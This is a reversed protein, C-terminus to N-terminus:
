SIKITYVRYEDYYGNNYNSWYAGYPKEYALTGSLPNPNKTAIYFQHKYGGKALYIAIRYVNGPLLTVRAVHDKWDDLRSPPNFPNYLDEWFVLFDDIANEVPYLRFLFSGHPDTWNFIWISNRSPNKVIIIPSDVPRNNWSSWSTQITYNNINQLIPAVGESPGLEANLDGDASQYILYNGTIYNFVVWHPTSYAVFTLNTNQQSLLLLECFYKINRTIRRGEILFDVKYINYDMSPPIFTIYVKGIQNPYLISPNLFVNAEQNEVFVKIDETKIDGRGLNKVTAIIYSNQCDVELDIIEIFKKITFSSIIFYIFTLMGISIFVILLVSIIDM